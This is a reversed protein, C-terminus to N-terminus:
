ENKDGKFNELYNILWESYLERKSTIFWYAFYLFLLRM